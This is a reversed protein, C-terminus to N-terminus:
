VQFALHIQLLCQTPLPWPCLSSQNDIKLVVDLQYVPDLTAKILLM